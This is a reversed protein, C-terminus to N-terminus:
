MGYVSIGCNYIKKYGSKYAIEENSTGKGYSTGLLKDAGKRVLSSNLFYDETEPNYWIAQPQSKKILKFGLDEYVKGTFKSLDCYTIISSNNSSLIFNKLLRNSGGVIIYGYKTCLRLLEYDYNKNFRSKCFSMLQLLENNYYLGLCKESKQYGQLHYKNLFEKEEVKDVERIDCKRAFIRIKSQNCLNLIWSLLRNCLVDDKLEWEWIHILRIGNEQSKLTKNLHYNSDKLKINHSQLDNIEIGINHDVLLYDIEQPYLISRDDHKFQINHEELFESFMKEILPTKIFFLDTLNLSYVRKRITQPGVKFIDSLEYSRLPRNKSQYLLTIFKNFLDDNSYIDTLTYDNGMSRVINDAEELIVVDDVMYKSQIGARIREKVLETKSPSDVGYKELCTQKRKEQIESSQTPYPTGYKEICTDRIKDVVEKCQFPHDVGYKENWTKVAKEKVEESQMSHRVGFHKECTDEAKRRIEPIQSVNDVNYKKNVTERSKKLIEESQMANEVGYREKMTSRAKARVDEVKMNHDVGYKKIFGEKIRDKVIESEVARETGYKSLCTQSSKEKFSDSQFIYDCGYKDKVTRKRKEQAEDSGILKGCCEKDGCTLSYHKPKVKRFKCFKNCIPCIHNSPDDTKM